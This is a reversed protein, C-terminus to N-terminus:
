EQWTNEDDSFGEWKVLHLVVNRVTSKTLLAEVEYIEDTDSEVGQSSCRPQM